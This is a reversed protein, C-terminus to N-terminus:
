GRKLVLNGLHLRRTADLPRSDGVLLLARALPFLLWDSIQDSMKLPRCPKSSQSNPHSPPLQPVRSMRAATSTVSTM